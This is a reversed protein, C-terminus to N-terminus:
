PRYAVRRLLAVEATLGPGFALAVCPGAGDPLLRELVFLITASSMNGHAALVDRSASLVADDLGLADRVSALVRPGGPHV